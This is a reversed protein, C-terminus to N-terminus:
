GFRAAAGGWGWTPQRVKKEKHHPDSGHWVFEHLKEDASPVHTCPGRIIKRSVEGTDEDRVYTVLVEHATITTATKAQIRKHLLPNFRVSSPGALNRVTGNHFVVKLYEQPVATHLPLREVRRHFNFVSAPGEVIEVGGDLSWVAMADGAPVTTYMQLTFVHYNIACGVVLLGILVLRCGIGM